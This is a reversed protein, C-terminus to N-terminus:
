ITKIDSQKSYFGDSSFITPIQFRRMVVVNACDVVSTGKKEQKKFFAVTERHLLENIHIIPLKTKEITVLFKRSADQGSKHSLVTATETIVLSTTVVRKKQKEIKAFISKVKKHHVDDPYFRGVFADSDVLLELQEGM